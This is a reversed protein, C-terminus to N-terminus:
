SCGVFLSLVLLLFLLLGVMKVIQPPVGFEAAAWKLIMWVIVALIVYILLNIIWLVPGVTGVPHVLFYALLSM